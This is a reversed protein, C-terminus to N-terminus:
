VHIIQGELVISPMRGESLSAVVAVSGKLNDREQSSELVRYTTTDRPIGMEDLTEQIIRAQEPLAVRGQYEAVVVSSQSTPFYIDFQKHLTQMDRMLQKTNNNGAEPDNTFEPLPAIHGLICAYTSIIIVASSSNLNRTIVFRTQHLPSLFAIKIENMHVEIKLPEELECIEKLQAADM